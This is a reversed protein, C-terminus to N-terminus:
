SEYCSWHCTKNRCVQLLTQLAKKRFIKTSPPHPASPVEWHKKNERRVGWHVVVNGPIDTDIHVLNKDTVNSKKVTVTMSNHVLEDKLIPYEEYFGTIQRNQFLEEKSRSGKPKLLLSSIQKLKGSFLPM